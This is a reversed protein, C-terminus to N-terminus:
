PMSVRGTEDASQKLIVSDNRTGPAVRPRALCLGGGVTSICWDLRGACIAVSGAAALTSLMKM